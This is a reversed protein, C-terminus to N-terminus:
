GNAVEMLAQFLSEQTLDLYQVNPPSTAIKWTWNIKKPTEPVLPPPKASAHIRVTIRPGTADRDVLTFRITGAPGVADVRGKTGILLTGIPTLVVKQRGIEIVMRRAVYLGINEENLTVTSYECKIEGSRIYKELYSEIMKYLDNLYQLWEDRERAWDIPSSEHKGLQQNKVFADFDPDNGGNNM